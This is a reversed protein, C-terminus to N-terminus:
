LKSVPGSKTTEWPDGGYEMDNLQEKIREWDPYEQKDIRGEWKPPNEHQWPWYYHYGGKTAAIWDSVWHYVLSDPEEKGEPYALITIQVLAGRLVRFIITCYLSLEYRYKTCTDGDLITTKTRFTDSEETSRLISVLQNSEGM